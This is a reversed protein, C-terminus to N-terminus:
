KRLADLIVVIQNLRDESLNKTEVQERKAPELYGSVIDTCYLEDNEIWYVKNDPAQVFRISISAEYERSQSTGVGSFDVGAALMKKMFTHVLSQRLAVVNEPKRRKRLNIIVIPVLTTLVGLFFLEM